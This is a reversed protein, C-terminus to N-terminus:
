SLSRVWLLHWLMSPQVTTLIFLVICGFEKRQPGGVHNGYAGLTNLIDRGAVLYAICGKIMTSTTLLNRIFTPHQELYQSSEEGLLPSIMGLDNEREREREM